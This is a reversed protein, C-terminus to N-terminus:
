STRVICEEANTRSRAIVNPDATPQVGLLADHEEQLIRENESAVGLGMDTARETATRRSIAGIGKLQVLANIDDNESM